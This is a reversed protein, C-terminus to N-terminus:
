LREASHRCAHHLRLLGNRHVVADPPKERCRKSAPPLALASTLRIDGPITQDILEDITEVSVAELMDARAAADPGIHRSEFADQM